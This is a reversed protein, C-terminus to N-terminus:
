GQTGGGWASGPFATLWFEILFRVNDDKETGDIRTFGPLVNLGARVALCDFTRTINGGIEELRSEESEYRANAGYSWPAKPFLTLDGTFLSSQLIRLLPDERRYRYEARGDILEGRARKIWANFTDLESDPLNYAGDLSVFVDLTPRMEIDWLINEVTDENQMPDLDVDAFVEADIINFPADNHKTQYKHRMGLRVFNEEGLTDVDDFQLLEHPKVSPEPVLTYNAFPEVIHQRPGHASEWIKFAKFSTEFGLEILGRFESGGEIDRTVVNTSVGTTVVVNTMGSADIVINSSLVSLQELVTETSRTKSYYTGRVGARPILTLFDFHKDPRFLAHVTDFRFSDLSDLGSTEEFERQLFSASTLSEYFFSSEKIPQRFVDLSVEPLRNVSNYFDNLRSRAIGNVTYNDERHTYSIFNDPQREQRFEDEFFDELIDTDSLYHARILATDQATFTHEDEFRIRYRDSDVDKNPPDDDAIPEQDDVYYLKLDGFQKNEDVNWKFDQGVGVGRETRLDLHTEGKLSPNIRYYYSSLLYYGMDSSHGAYFRWGFDDDLNRRWYPLYMSPVKGFWWVANKTKLYKDPKLEMRKATVRFHHHGEENDCTTASANHFIYIDGSKKAGDFTVKFPDAKAAQGGKTLGDGTVFNYEVYEGTWEQDGRTIRVNGEATAVETNVDVRVRDAKLVVDGRTIVVNGLADVIGKERDYNLTEATTEISQGDQEGEPIAEEAKTEQLAVSGAILAIFSFLALERLRM